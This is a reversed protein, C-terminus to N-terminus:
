KACVDDNWAIAVAEYVSGDRKLKKALPKHARQVYTRFRLAVWAGEDSSMLRGINEARAWREFLAFLETFEADEQNFGFAADDDAAVSM